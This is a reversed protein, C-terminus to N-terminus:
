KKKKKKKKKQKSSEINISCPIFRNCSLTQLEQFPLPEKMQQLHNNAITQKQHPSLLPSQNPRKTLFSSQFHPIIFSTLMSPIM